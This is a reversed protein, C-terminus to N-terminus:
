IPDDLNEYAGEEVLTDFESLSLSLCSFPFVIEIVYEDGNNAKKVGEVRGDESQDGDMWRRVARGMLSHDAEPILSGAYLSGYDRMYVLPVTNAFWILRTFLWDVCCLCDISMACACNDYM